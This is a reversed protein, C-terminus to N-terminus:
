ERATNKAISLAPRLVWDGLRHRGTTVGTEDAQTTNVAVLKTQEPLRSKVFLHLNKLPFHLNNGHFIIIQTVPATGCRARQVSSAGAAGAQPKPHCRRYSRSRCNCGSTSSSPSYSCSSQTTRSGRRSQCFLASSRNLHRGAASRSRKRHAWCSRQTGVNLERLKDSFFTGCVKWLQWRCRM